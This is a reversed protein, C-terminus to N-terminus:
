YNKIIQKKLNKNSKKLDLLDNKLGKIVKKYNIKNEIPKDKLQTLKGFAYVFGSDGWYDSEHLNGIIGLYDNGIWKLGLKKLISKDIKIREKDMQLIIEFERYTKNPYKRIMKLTYNITIILNNNFDIEDLIEQNKEYIDKQLSIM